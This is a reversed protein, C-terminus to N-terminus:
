PLLGSVCYPGGRELIKCTIPSNAFAGAFLEPNETNIAFLDYHSPIATKVSLQHSLVVSEQWSMNGFKGNICGVIIDPKLAAADLLRDNKLTDGTFYIKTDEYQVVLGISDQTHDAFIAYVEFPGVTEKDGRDFRHLKHEPFGAAKLDAVCSEPGYFTDFEIYDRLTEIDLHDGHNHTSFVANIKLSGKPVPSPYSRIFGEGAISDSFYLDIALSFGNCSLVYSAQGYWTLEFSM